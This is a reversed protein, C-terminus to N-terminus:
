LFSLANFLYDLPSSSSLIGHMSVIFLITDLKGIRRGDVTDIKYFSFVRSHLIASINVAIIFVLLGTVSTAASM